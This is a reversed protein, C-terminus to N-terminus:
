EAVKRFVKISTYFVSPTFDVEQLPYSLEGNKLQSYVKFVDEHGKNCDHILVYGGDTVKPIWNDLDSILEKESHGADVFLRDVSLDDFNSAEKYSLNKILTVNKCDNFKDKMLNFSHPNNSFSNTYFKKWEEDEILHLDEFVDISVVKKCVRSLLRTTTGMNTGLEVFLNSGKSFNMIVEVDGVSLGGVSYSQVIFQLSDEFASVRYGTSCDKCLSGIINNYKKLENKMKLKFSPFLNTIHSFNLAFSITNHKIFNRYHLPEFLLNPNKDFNLPIFINRDLENCKNSNSSVLPTLITEGFSTWQLNYSCILRLQENICKLWETTITSHALSYFYGNLVRGDNWRLFQFEKTDDLFENLLTIPRLFITDADVWLGGYKNIIAVRVCDARQAVFPLLRWNDNLDEDIIFDNINDPTVLTFNPCNNRISELCIQIIPPQIDEITEWYSWVKIENDLM